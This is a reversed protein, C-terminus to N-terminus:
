SASAKRWPWVSRPLADTGAMALGLVLCIVLTYIPEVFVSLIVAHAAAAVVAATLLSRLVREDEDGTRSAARGHLAAAAYLAIIASAGPVGTRFLYNLFTSHTGAKPIYRGLEHSVGSESRPRETGYGVLFHLGNVAGITDEYVSGRTAISAEGGARASIPDVDYKIFYTATLVAAGAVFAAVVMQKQRRTARGDVLLYIVGIPIAVWAGRALSFGAGFLCSVIGVRGLWRRRGAGRWALYFSLFFLAVCSGAYTLSNRAFSRMRPVSNAPTLGVNDYLLSVGRGVDKLEDEFPRASSAFRVVINTTEFAQFKPLFVEFDPLDPHRSAFRELEARFERAGGKSSRAYKMMGLNNPFADVGYAEEVRKRIEDNQLEQIPAGIWEAFVAVSLFVIFGVLGAAVRVRTAHDRLTDVAALLIGSALVQIGFLLAFHKGDLSIDIQTAGLATWVVLGIPLWIWRGGRPLRRQRLLAVGWRAVVTTWGALIVFPLMDVLWGAVGAFLPSVFALPLPLVLALAVAAVTFCWLAIVGGQLTWT